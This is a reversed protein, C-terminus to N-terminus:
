QRDLCIIWIKSVAGHEEVLVRKDDGTTPCVDAESAIGDIRWIRGPMCEIMQMGEFGAAPDDNLGVICTGVPPLNGPYDGFTAIECAGSALTAVVLAVALALHRRMKLM